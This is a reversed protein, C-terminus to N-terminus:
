GNTRIRRSLVAARIEAMLSVDLEGRRRTSRSSNLGADAAVSIIQRSRLAVDDFSEYTRNRFHQHRPPNSVLEPDRLPALTGTFPKCSHDPVLDAITAREAAQRNITSDSCRSLNDGGPGANAQRDFVV